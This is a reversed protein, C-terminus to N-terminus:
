APYGYPEGVADVHKLVTSENVLQYSIGFKVIAWATVARNSAEDEDGFTLREFRLRSSHQITKIDNLM